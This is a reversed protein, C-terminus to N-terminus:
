ERAGREAFQRPSVFRVIAPGVQEIPLVDSAANLTAAAKPM